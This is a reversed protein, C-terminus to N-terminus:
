SSNMSTSSLKSTNKWYSILAKSSDTIMIVQHSIEMSFYNGTTRSLLLVSGCWASSMCVTIKFFFFFFFFFFSFLSLLCHKNSVGRLTVTM